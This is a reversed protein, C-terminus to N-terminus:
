PAVRALECLSLTAGPMNTRVPTCSGDVVALNHAAYVEGAMKADHSLSYLPGRHDRIATMSQIGLRTTDGPRTFSNFAGVFRADPALYPLVHGVPADSALVVLAGPPLAKAQVDFWRDGFPIRGWDPWRTTAIVALALITVATPLVPTRVLYRALGVILAGSLLELTLIYRYIGYQATWLVFAALWFVSAFLWPANSADLTWRRRRVAKSAVWSAVSAAGAVLALTYLTPMRADRYEVEAVFFPRPRFMDYPFTLWGELTFPGFVRDLVPRPDWWPSRFWQNLYPFVPSDFRNWLIVCWWGISLALGLAVAPAFWAAERLGVM